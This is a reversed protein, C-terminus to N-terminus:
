SDAQISPRQALNMIRRCRRSIRICTQYRRGFALCSEHGNLNRVDAVHGELVPLGIPDGGHDAADDRLIRAGERKVARPGIDDALASDGHDIRPGQEGRVDIGQLPSQPRLAYGMDDDGVGMTIVGRRGPGQLLRGTRRCISEAGVTGAARVAAPLDLFASVPIENRIDAYAVAVTDFPAAPRQFRHMRGAVRRVM